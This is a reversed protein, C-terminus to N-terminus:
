LWSKTNSKKAQELEGQYAYEATHWHAVAQQPLVQCVSPCVSLCTFVHISVVCLISSGSM